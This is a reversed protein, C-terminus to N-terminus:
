IGNNDLNGQMGNSPMRVNGSNNNGNANNILGNNGRYAPLGNTPIIGNGGVLGNVNGGAGGNTYRLVNYPNLYANGATMVTGNTGPYGGYGMHQMQQLQQQTAMAGGGGGATGNGIIYQDNIGISPLGGLGALPPLVQYSHEQHQMPTQTTNTSMGSYDSINSQIVNQQQPQQQYNSSMLPPIVSPTQLHNSSSQQQQPTHLQQSTTLLQQTQQSSQATQQTPQHMQQTQHTPQPTNVRQQQQLQPSQHAKHLSQPHLRPTGKKQQPQQQHTMQAGHQQLSQRNQAQQQKLYTQIKNNQYSQPQQQQSQQNMSMGGIIGNSAALKYQRSSSSNLDSVNINSSALVKNNMTSTTIKIVAAAASRGPLPQIHNHHSAAFVQSARQILQNIKQNYHLRHPPLPSFDPMLKQKIEGQPNTYQDAVTALYSLNSQLRVKYANMEQANMWGKTNYDICVRILEVNVDLIAQVCKQTYQTQGGGGKNDGPSNTTGGNVDSFKASVPQTTITNGGISAQSAGSMYQSDNIHQQQGNPNSTSTTPTTATAQLTYNGPGGFNGRTTTTNLPQSHAQSPESAGWTSLSRLQPDYTTQLSTNNNNNTYSQSSFPSQFDENMDQSIIPINVCSAGANSANVASLTRTSWASVGDKFVSTECIDFFFSNPDEWTEFEVEDFYSYWAKESM